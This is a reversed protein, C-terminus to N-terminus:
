SKFDLLLIYGSLQNNEGSKFDKQEEVNPNSWLLAKPVFGFLGTIYYTLTVWTSNSDFFEHHTQRSPEMKILFLSM